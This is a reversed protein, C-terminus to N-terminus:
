ICKLEFIQPICAILFFATQDSQCLQEKKRMLIYYLPLFKVVSLDCIVIPNTM